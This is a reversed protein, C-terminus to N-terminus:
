QVDIVVRQYGDLSGDVLCLAGVLTSCVGAADFGVGCVHRVFFCDISGDLVCGSFEASEVVDDVGGADGDFVCAAGGEGCRAVPGADEVDVQRACEEHEAGGGLYHERLRGDAGADVVPGELATGDDVEGGDLADRGDRERGGVGDRLM